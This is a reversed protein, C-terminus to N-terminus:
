YRIMGRGRGAIASLFPSNRLTQIQPNGTMENAAAPYLNKVDDACAKMAATYADKDAQTKGMSAITLDKIHGAFDVPIPMFCTENTLCVYDGATVLAATATAFTQSSTTPAGTATVSSAVREYPEVQSFFDHVSNASFSSPALGDYTITGAASTLVRAARAPNTGSGDDTARVFRGPRKHIWTRLTPWITIDGASPAPNIEIRKDHIRIGRPHGATTEFFLVDEAPDRRYLECVQGQTDILYGLHLKNLMAGPPILYTSQGAVLTIDYSERFFSPRATILLPAVVRTVQEWAIDLLAQDTFSSQVAPLYSDRRLVDSLWTDWLAMDALAAV